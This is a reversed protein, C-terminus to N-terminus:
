VFYEALHRVIRPELWYQPRWPVRGQIFGVHGGRESLELTVAPSLDTETPLGSPDIFPDDRAHLILTPKRILKLYPLCSSSQYYHQYNDFGHLPATVHDDFEHFTRTRLAQGVDIPARRNGFKRRVKDHMRRMLAFQYIRSAGRTITDASTRLDFPVSVAIATVLPGPESAEEGLYKLLVNAGISYGVAAIPAAPDRRNLEELVFRLDATDGAHYSRPLRNLTGSCGRFHMLAARWGVRELAAMIAGAYRSDISGELGHLVLVLPQGAGGGRTWDVDVFDGDPLDVRERVVRANSRRRFATNAALTQLHRNRLWWAPKFDSERIM